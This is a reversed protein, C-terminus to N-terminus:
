LYIIDVYSADDGLFKGGPYKATYDMNLWYNGNEDTHYHLSANSASPFLERLWYIAIEANQRKGLNLEPYAHTQTLVIRADAGVSEMCAAMLIAHDDCDGSFFGNKQNKITSSAKSFFEHGTPDKVYNWQNNISKFIAFSHIISLMEMSKQQSACERFPTHTTQRVAWDRVIENNYDAANRIEQRYNMRSSSPIFKVKEVPIKKRSPINPSYDTKTKINQYLVAYDRTVDKFGYGGDIFSGVTLIGVSLVVLVYVMWKVSTLIGEILVTLLAFEIYRDIDFWWNFAPIISRLLPFLLFAILLAVIFIVAEGLCSSDEKPTNGPNDMEQDPAQNCYKNNSTM